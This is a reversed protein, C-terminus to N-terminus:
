KGDTGRKVISRGLGYTPGAAIMAMVVGTDVDGSKALYVGAVLGIVTMWFETTQWGTKM